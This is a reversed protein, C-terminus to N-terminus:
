SLIIDKMQFKQMAIMSTEKQVFISMPDNIKGLVKRLVLWAMMMEERSKDLQRRGSNGAEVRVLRLCNECQLLVLRLSNKM